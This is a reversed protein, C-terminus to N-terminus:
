IYRYLSYRDITECPNAIRPSIGARQSQMAESAIVRSHKTSDNRPAHAVFCDKASWAPHRGARAHRSFVGDGLNILLFNTM